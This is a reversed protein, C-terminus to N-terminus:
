AIETLNRLPLQNYTDEYKIDQWIFDLGDSLLNSLTEDNNSAKVVLYPSVVLNCLMIIVFTLSVLIRHIGHM